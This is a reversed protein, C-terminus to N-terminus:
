ANALLEAVAGVAGGVAPGHLVEVRHVVRPERLELGVAAAGALAQAPVAVLGCGAAALALVGRVDTGEVRLAARFAGTGCVARLRDLEVAADPADIWRADALDALRVGRRAALPHRQPVAVVLPQEAVAVRALPGTSELPLPDSPAAIGDVLGIDVVGTAVAAVAAARGLAQITIQTAPRVGAISAVVPEVMALASAAIRVRGAASASLRAVDARAAALRLLLPGAHELLREGAPTPVVPRRRLLETGLDAELAAVHQSVASQTYGLERAAGSFSGLRAVATFTRLLHPDVQM